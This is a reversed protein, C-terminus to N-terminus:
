RRMLERAAAVVAEPTIGLEQAIVPGPASAGYGDLGLATGREGVLRGRVDRRGGASVGGSSPRCVERHRPQAM